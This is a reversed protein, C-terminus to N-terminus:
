DTDGKRVAGAQDERACRVLRWRKRAKDAQKVVEARRGSKHQRDRQFIGGLGRRLLEPSQPRHHLSIALAVVQSKKRQVKTASDHV